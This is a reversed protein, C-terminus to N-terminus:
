PSNQACTKKKMKKKNIILTQMVNEIQNSDNIQRKKERRKERVYSNGVIDIENMLMVVYAAQIFIFPIM